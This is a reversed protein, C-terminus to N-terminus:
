KTTNAAWQPGEELHAATTEQPTLTATLTLKLKGGRMKQIRMKGPEHDFTKVVTTFLADMRERLDAEAKRLMDQTLDVEKM